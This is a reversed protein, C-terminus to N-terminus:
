PAAVSTDSSPEDPIAASLCQSSLDITPSVELSHEPCFTELNPEDLWSDDGDDDPNEDLKGDSKSFLRNKIDFFRYLNDAPLINGSSDAFTSEGMSTQNQTPPPPYRRRGTHIVEEPLNEVDVVHSANLPM